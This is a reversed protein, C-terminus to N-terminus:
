YRGKIQILSPTNFGNLYLGKLLDQNCVLKDFNKHEQEM